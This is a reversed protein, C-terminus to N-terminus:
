ANEIFHSMDSPQVFGFHKIRPHQFPPIDGTGLCWLEWDNPHKEHLTVFANWLDEIGKQAVYRGVYIFRKPFKLQKCAKAKLYQSNFFNYDCCYFGTLINNIPFGLLEAYKKQPEGPIWCHNYYARLTFSSTLVMLWQRFTAEWQNDFGVVVPIKGKYRRCIKLYGKDMWGSAYIFSPNITDILKILQEDKYKGRDYLNINGYELFIFPAEKNIPWHVIHIDVSPISGLQKICALFYGSLESYLFVVKKKM